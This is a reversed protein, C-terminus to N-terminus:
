GLASLVTKGGNVGCLKGCVGLGIYTSNSYDLINSNTMIFGVAPFTISLFVHPWFM